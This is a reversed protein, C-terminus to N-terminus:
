FLSSIWDFGGHTTLSITLILSCVAYVALIGLGILGAGVQYEGRPSFSQLNFIIVAIYTLVTLVFSLNSFMQNKTKFILKFHLPSGGSIVVIKM